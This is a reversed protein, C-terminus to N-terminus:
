FVFPIFRWRVVKCYEQYDPDQILHREETIARLFYITTWGILSLIVLLYQGHDVLYPLSTLWWGLTKCIYAPHRVYAYPGWSVIGRNTLNSCRTGLALTAWLYIALFVLAGIRMSYTAVLAPLYGASNASWFLYKGTIEYFPPYCLLTVIWGLLTPEVSRVQNKFLPYEVSYGFLFYVTDVVFFLAFIYPFLARLMFDHVDTTSGFLNWSYMMNSWNGILFQTMMPLFYFKVLLFLIAVKENKQLTPPNSRDLPASRLYRWGERLFRIIARLALLGKGELRRKDRPLAMELPIALIAYLVVIMLIAKQADEGLFNQYYM